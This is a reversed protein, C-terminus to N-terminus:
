FSGEAARIVRLPHPHCRSTDTLLKAVLDVLDVRRNFRYCFAALYHAGYKAFDLAHYAGTLSTKLNGLVTNVWKFQPLDRPKSTGVVKVEHTCKAQTVAGFCALGDSLVRCGPALHAVAWDKLAASTFGPVPTLKAFLPHGQNSLSVAAVFSVKNESGRGPKGGAREGGLYADDLQVLGRLQHAQERVAMANMLKHHVLWATPYSVGLQRRLALSSLGTKAQSVLYIALFWIRLPLKTSQFLSGAILSTQHRCASCQYLPHTRGSVICHERGACAPCTFGAPWRMLAVARACQAETGFAQLFSPLSMGYQFQVRNMAMASDGQPHLTLTSALYSVV